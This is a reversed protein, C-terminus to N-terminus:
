FQPVNKKKKKWALFRSARRKEKGAVTRLTTINNLDLPGSKKPTRVREERRGPLRTKKPSTSLANEKKQGGNRRCKIGIRGAATPSDESSYM